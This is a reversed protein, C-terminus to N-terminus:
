TRRTAILSFTELVIEFVYQFLVNYKYCMCLITFCIVFYIYIIMNSFMYFQRNGYMGLVFLYVLFITHTPLNHSLFVAM